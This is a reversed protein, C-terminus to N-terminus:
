KAGGKKRDEPDIEDLMALVEARSYRRSAKDTRVRMDVACLRKVFGEMVEGWYDGGNCTPTEVPAVVVDKYMINGAVAQLEERSAEIAIGPFKEGDIMQMDGIGIVKM